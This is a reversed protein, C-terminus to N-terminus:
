VGIRKLRTEAVGVVAWWCRSVFELSIHDSLLRAITTKGSGSPGWLISSVMRGDDLMRRLLGTGGLLRGQGLVEDLSRPRLQDALPRIKSGEFLSGKYEM